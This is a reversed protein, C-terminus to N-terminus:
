SDYNGIINKIKKFVARRRMRLRNIGSLLLKIVSIITRANGSLSIRMLESNENEGGGRAGGRAAMRADEVGSVIAGRKNRLSLEGRKKEKKKKLSRKAEYAEATDEM